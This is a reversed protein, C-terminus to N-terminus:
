EILGTHKKFLKIVTKYDPMGKEVLRWFNKSHNFEGLHCLEHIIVYDMMNQPLSAIQYNFNLNGKRTCSGWRTKQNRISIAGYTFGYAKNLEAVRATVLVRAKEKLLEYEKKREAATLRKPLGSAQHQKEKEAFYSVREDIWEKKSVVLREATEYSVRFPVTVIVKGDSHVRISLRKARKNKRISYEM